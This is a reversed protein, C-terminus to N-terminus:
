RVVERETRIQFSGHAEISPIQHRDIAHARKCGRHPNCFRRLYHYFNATPIDVATAHLGRKQAVPPAYFSIQTDSSRQFDAAPAPPVHPPFPADGCRVGTNAGCASHLAGRTCRAALRTSAPVIKSRKPHTKSTRLGGRIQANRASSKRIANKREKRIARHLEFCPIQYGLWFVAPTCLVPSQPYCIAFLWLWLWLAM